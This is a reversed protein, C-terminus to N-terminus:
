LGRRKLEAKYLEIMRELDIDSKKSTNYQIDLLQWEGFDDTYPISQALIEDNIYLEISTGTSLAFFNFDAVKIENFYEWNILILEYRLSDPYNPDTFIIMDGQMDTGSAKYMFEDYEFYVTDHVIVEKCSEKECGLFMLALIPVSILIILLKRM